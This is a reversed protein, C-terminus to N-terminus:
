RLIDNAAAQAGENYGSDYAKKEAKLQESRRMVGQIDLQETLKKNERKESKYDQNLQTYEYSLRDYDEAKEDNTKM